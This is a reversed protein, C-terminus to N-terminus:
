ITDIYKHTSRSQKSYMQFNGDAFINKIKKNKCKINLILCCNVFIFGIFEM